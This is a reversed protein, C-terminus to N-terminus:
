LVGELAYLRTIVKNLFIDRAQDHQGAETRRVGEECLWRLDTITQLSVTPQPMPLPPAVLGQRPVNFVGNGVANWAKSFDEWTARLTAGGMDRYYPDHYVIENGEVGIIDVFHGNRYHPDYQNPMEPYWVLAIIPRRAEICAAVEALTMERRYELDIRFERALRQLERMTAITYNVPKQLIKGLADITIYIALALLIMGLTTPGCDGKGYGADEALQSRYPVPLIM